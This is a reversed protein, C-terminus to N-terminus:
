LSAAHTYPGSNSDGGGVSFGPTVKQVQLGLAPSISIALDRPSPPKASNNLGPGVSVWSASVGWQSRPVSCEDKEQTHGNAERAGTSLGADMCMHAVRIASLLNYLYFSSSMSNPHPYGPPNLPSNSPYHPISIVLHM